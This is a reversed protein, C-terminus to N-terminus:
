NQNPELLYELEIKRLTLERVADMYQSQMSIAGSILTGWEIYNIEGNRYNLGATRIIVDAHPLASTKYYSVADRFKGYENWQQQLQMRLKDSALDTAAASVAQMEMAAKVRAKQARTFIPVGIGLQVTSFRRSGNYYNDTQNKDMQWGVISQNTYGVNWDPLLKAKELQTMGAAVQQQQRYVQLFPHQQLTTSDFLIISVDLTDTIDIRNHENLLANLQIMAVQEDSELM